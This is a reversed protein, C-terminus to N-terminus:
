RISRLLAGVRVIGLAQLTSLYVLLGLLVLAALRVLRGLVPGQPDFGFSFLRDAAMIVTGMVVAAILIAVIRRGASPDLAIWGRRWLAVGLLSAGVWGSLGIAAAVGVQAYSPFLAFALVVTSALGALAAWMPSKTDHHGFSIAGLAKELVHGPLGAAMAALAAAVAAADQPGFAGREFLGAAIPQALTIFAIASPVALGLSVEFARAQTSALASRDRVLVSAAIRPGLVSAIAVSVVGLPLEYLRNAYYLWSVAAPSSSAVMAGAILKLQPIGSAILGPLAKAYFGRLEPSFEPRLRRPRLTTMALSAFCDLASTGNQIAESRECHRSLAGRAVLVFQVLGAVVISGALLNATPQSTGTGVILVFAIAGILVMNFAVVSFAAARVQGQANLSASATAVLGAIIVYPAALRLLTVATGFRTDDDDFGPLLLMVVTPAFVICILAVLGLVLANVALVNWTFRDADGGSQRTRMWAPVFAANLAGDAVLRRFLNPIQLAAFYADSLPGAGLVAAIGMDRLFGLLRSALTASGVSTVDRVVSM